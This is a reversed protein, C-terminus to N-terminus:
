LYVSIKMYAYEPDIRYILRYLVKGTCELGKEMCDRIQMGPDGDMCYSDILHPNSNYGSM